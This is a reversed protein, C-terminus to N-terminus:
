LLVANYCSFVAASCYKSLKHLYCVKHSASLWLDMLFFEGDELHPFQLLLFALYRFLKVNYVQTFFSSLVKELLKGLLAENKRM